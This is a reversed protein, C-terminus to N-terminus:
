PKWWVIFDLNSRFLYEAANSGGERFDRESDLLINRFYTNFFASLSGSVARGVAKASAYTHAYCQAEIRASALDAEGDDTYIPAGSIRMLVVDPLLGGQPRSGWYVRNGVLTTVATTALLRTRIAEEM